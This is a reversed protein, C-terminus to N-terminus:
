LWRRVKTKYQVFKNGYKSELIIEEPIIQFYNMYLVYMPIVILAPINSLICAWGLLVFLLALYMPNRTISYVGSSVLSSVADIRVSNITTRSFVFTLIGSVGFVGGIISLIMAIIKQFPFHYSLNPTISAIIWMCAAAIFFVIPPPIKLKLSKMKISGSPDRDGNFLMPYIHGTVTIVQMGV